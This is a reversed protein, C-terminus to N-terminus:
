IANQFKFGVGPPSFHALNSVGASYAIKPIKVQFKLKQRGEILIDDWSLKM